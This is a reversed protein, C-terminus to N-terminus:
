ESHRSQESISDFNDDIVDLKASGNIKTPVIPPPIPDRNAGTFNNNFTTEDFDSDENEEKYLSDRENISGSSAGDNLADVHFSSECDKPV